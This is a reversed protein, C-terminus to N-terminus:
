ALLCLVMATLISLHYCLRFSILFDKIHVFNLNCKRQRKLYLLWKRRSFFFFSNYSLINTRPVIFSMYQTRSSCIGNKLIVQNKRRKRVKPRLM